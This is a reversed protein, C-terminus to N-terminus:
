FGVVIVRKVGIVIFIIMVIIIVAISIVMGLIIVRIM